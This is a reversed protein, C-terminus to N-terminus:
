PALLGVQWTMMTAAGRDWDEALAALDARTAILSPDIALEEAPPKEAM